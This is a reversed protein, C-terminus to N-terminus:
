EWLADPFQFTDLREIEQAQGVYWGKIKYLGDEELIIDAYALNLSILRIDDHKWTGDSVYVKRAHYKKLTYRDGGIKGQEEVLVLRDQRTGVVDPHFFAWWSDEIRPMM